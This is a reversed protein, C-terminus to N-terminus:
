LITFFIFYKPISMVTSIVTDAISKVPLVKKTTTEILHLANQCELVNKDKNYLEEYPIVQDELLVFDEIVKHDLMQKINNIEQEINKFSNLLLEYKKKNEACKPCDGMKSM